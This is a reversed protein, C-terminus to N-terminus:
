RWLIKWKLEEEWVVPDLSKIVNQALDMYKAHIVNRKMKLTATILENETTLVGATSPKDYFFWLQGNKECDYMFETLTKLDNKM